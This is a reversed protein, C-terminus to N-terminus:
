MNDTSLVQNKMDRMKIEPLLSLQKQSILALIINPFYLKFARVNLLYVSSVLDENLKLIV